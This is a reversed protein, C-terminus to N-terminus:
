LGANDLLSNLEAKIARAKEGKWGTLNGLAYRVVSAASDAYYQDHISNLQLFPEVYPQAYVYFKKDACEQQIERGIVSLSRVTQLNTM